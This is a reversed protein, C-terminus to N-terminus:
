AAISARQGQRAIHEILSAGAETPRVGARHLVAVVRTGFSWDGKLLVLDGRALEEVVTLVPVIALLDTSRVISKTVLPSSLEISSGPFPVGARQFDAELRQYFSTDARPMIWQCQSLDHLRLGGRGALANTPSAIVCLEMSFLPEIEIGSLRMDAPVSSILFDVDHERLNALLAPRGGEVVHVAVDPETGRLVQLAGLLFSGAVLPTVGIRLNTAKDGKLREIERVASRVEAEIVAAHRVLVDGYKTLAIGRSSRELLPVGLAEELRSLSRTLAPQSLHLAEAAKNISGKETVRLLSLLAPISHKLRNLRGM